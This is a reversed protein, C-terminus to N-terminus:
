VPKTQNPYFNFRLTSLTKQRSFVIKSNNPNKKYLKIISKFLEESLSFINTYYKELMKISNKDFCKKLNLYEIYPNKLKNSYNYTVQPDGLDLGEKGNVDNPFYGRYNNKNLINWKKPSLKKKSKNSLNFFKNGVKCINKIQKQDIRESVVGGRRM